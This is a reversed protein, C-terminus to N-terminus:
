QLMNLMHALDGVALQGPASTKRAAGFTMASGFTSGCIRSIVGLKGMSMTVCPTDPYAATFAATADLLTLVDQPSRPMCAIKVVQAGRNKMDTLRRLLEEKPPTQQFDHNSMVTTVHHRAAAALAADTGSRDRFYEIDIADTLGSAIVAQLLDFYATEAMATEGGEGCTRFTFLLPADPLIQRLQHLTDLVSQTDRVTELYDIRLEIIDYPLSSVYRCEDTLEQLTRGVLPVCIKPTGNHLPVSGITIM